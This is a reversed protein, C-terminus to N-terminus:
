YAYALSIRGVLSPSLSTLGFAPGAVISLRHELLDLAGTPGVFHRAGQEFEDDDFAGELDQAVYEVGVRLPGMLEYSSGAMLMVDVGDRGAVFVHEGHLTTGLRFRGVDHAFTARAWAGNGGGM